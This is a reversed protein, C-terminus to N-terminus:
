GDFSSTKNGYDQATRVYLDPLEIKPFLLYLVTALIIFM